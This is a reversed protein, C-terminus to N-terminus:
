IALTDPTTTADSTIAGTALDLTLVSLTGLNFLESFETLAEETAPLDVTSVAGDAHFLRADDPNYELLGSDHETVVFRVHTVPTASALRNDPTLAALDENIAELLAAGEVHAIVQECAGVLHHLEFSPLLALAGAVVTHETLLQALLQAREDVTLPEPEPETM